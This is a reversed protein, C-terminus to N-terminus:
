KHKVAAVHEVIARMDRKGFDLANLLQQGAVHVALVFRNLRSDVVIPLPVPDLMGRLAIQVAERGPEHGVDHAVHDFGAGPRRALDAVVRLPQQLTVAPRERFREWHFIAAPVVRCRGRVHAGVPQTGPQIHWLQALDQGPRQRRRSGVDVVDIM